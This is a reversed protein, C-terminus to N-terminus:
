DVHVRTMTAGLRRKAIVAGKRTLQKTMVIAGRDSAFYYNGPPYFAKLSAVLLAKHEAQQKPGRFTGLGLRMKGVRCWGTMYFSDSEGPQKTTKYSKVCDLDRAVARPPKEYYNAADGHAPAALLTSLLVVAVAVGHRM